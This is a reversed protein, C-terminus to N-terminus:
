EKMLKVQGIKQAGGEYIEIFYVGVPLRSIDLVCGSALDVKSVIKTHQVQGGINVIKLVQQNGTLIGNYQIQFKDKVPNPYINFASANVNGTYNLVIPNSKTEIGDNDVQLLRYYNNGLLPSKDIYFYTSNSGKAKITQINQYIKNDGARELIFKHHNLETATNWKVNVGETFKTARFNTLEVALTTPTEFSVSFRDAGGSESDMKDITFNYTSNNSLTLSTGLYKDHLKLLYGSPLNKYNISLAYSGSENKDHLNFDVVSSQNVKPLYNIVLNQNDQSKSSFFVQTGFSGPATIYKTDENANYAKDKGDQFIVATESRYPTGHKILTLKLDTSPPLSYVNHEINSFIGDELTLNGGNRMDMLLPIAQSTLKSTERFTLTSGGEGYVFFAQGSPIIASGGNVGNSGDYTAYDRLAPNWIRITSSLSGPKLIGSSNWNISSAYPNGVLNYGANLTVSVDQQNLVGKFDMVTDEPDLFPPTTKSSFNSRDGRYFLYAGRGAIVTTNISPIAVFGGNHTWASASNAANPDFGNSAGGSGTVILDDKFEAFSYTRNTSNGNTYIPSSLMRYTRYPAQAGGSIFREVKVNGIISSSSPIATVTASSLQNSMLALKGNVQLVTNPGMSLKGHAAIKFNGASLTVTNGNSFTVDAIELAEGNTPLHQLTQVSGGVFNLPTNNTILDVNGGASIWHGSINLPYNPGVKKGAGSTALLRNYTGSIINQTISSNFEIDIPWTRGPTFPNEASSKLRGNGNLIYAGDLPHDGMDLIGDVTLAGSITYPLTGNPLRVGKVNNITLNNLTQPLGAGTNQAVAGNYIYNAAQYTRSGTNQISGSYIGASEIGDSHATIITSQMEATFTGTAGLIENTDFDMIAGSKIVFNILGTIEANRNTYKQITTGNFNITPTSVVNRLEGDELTLNGGINVTRNQYRTVGVQGKRLILDGYITSTGAGSGLFMIGAGTSIIEVTKASFGASLGPGDNPNNQDPANWVFKDFAQASGSMSLAYSTYGIIECTSGIEWTAIPISGNVDTYKHQYKSGNAFIIQSDVSIVEGTNRGTLIGNVQLDVPEPGNVITLKGISVILEGGVDITLQDVNVSNIVEVVHSDRITIKNSNNDPILTAAHWDVLGDASSEWTAADAWLGSASSRFYDSILSPPTPEPIYLDVSFGTAVDSINIVQIGATHINVNISRYASTLFSSSSPVVDIASSKVLSVSNTIGNIPNFYKDVARIRIDFNVGRSPVAPNGLVGLTTGPAINQSPLWAVIKVYDGAIVTLNASKISAKSGDTIDNAIINRSGATILTVNFDLTGAILKQSLPLTTNLDTSTLIVKDEITSILNWAADVANVRVLFPVGAIQTNPTGTKGKESGPAAVEGPLLIQLKAFGASFVLVNSNEYALISPNVTNKAIVQTVGLTRLTITCRKYGASLPMMASSTSNIDPSTVQVTESIDYIRNWYSDVAYVLANFSVGAAVATANGSKGTETGPDFKEGPMILLLKVYSNPSVTFTATSSAAKTLDIDDTVKIRHDKGAKKLQVEFEGSGEVLHVGLPFNSTANFASNHHTVTVAHNITSVVNWNADVANVRVQFVVGAKPPIGDFPVGLKGTKTNPMSIEGPLLIQLKTYAGVVVSISESNYFWGTTLDEATIRHSNSITRLRTTSFTRSGLYFTANEPNLGNPDDSSVKISNTPAKTVKNWYNDVAFVNISSEENVVWPSPQGFKGQDSGPDPFEGPLLLLIKAYAGASITLNSSVYSNRGNNIDTAILQFNTGATKLTVEFVGNGGALQPNIPLDAHPNNTSLKVPYNPISTVLNFAYDVANVVVVFTDGAIRNAIVGTKGTATGPANNQGPLLVQLSAVNGAVKSLTAIISSAGSPLGNILADGGARILNEPPGVINRTSQVWVDAVTIANGVSPIGTATFTITIENATVLISAASINPGMFNVSGSGVKFQWGLPLKFIISKDIGEAFDAAVRDEIKLLGLDTYTSSLPNATAYDNSILEGGTFKTIKVQAYGIRFNALFCCVFITFYALLTSVKM